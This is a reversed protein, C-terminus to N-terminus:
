QAERSISRVFTEPVGTSAETERVWGGSRAPDPVFGLASYLGSAVGNKETAVYEGLIRTVGEARAAELLRALMFQEATRSFIRCSMLWSDIRWADGERFVIMSSVLGHDAHRDRLSFAFARVDDRALMARLSPEDYRRTTLNFQNTKQELQALRPLSTEDAPVFTGVMELESLFAGLDSVSEVADELQRRAAYSASRGADERTYRDHEFWGDRELLGVFATPDAGLEVVGVEPLERRVLDCEAANDDAFVLADLGLNLRKAIGRLATAKDGWSCEFAAFDDLAFASHPHTFGTAAIQPDNKSCVALVVGRASLGKVYAGWASFAEGAPTDPGLAISEVGDDGIVGGWLTNDLDLVLAKKARANAGRWAAGFVRLYVPLFQPDFPVKGNVYFREPAWRALGIARAAREVDVFRVREAGRELLARNLADVQNAESAPALRDAMGRFGREPPVITQQYVTAGIREAARWLREFSAAKADIAAAVDDSSAGIPLVTVVDRYDPAIVVAEPAFAHLDSAPDLLEQVYAGYRGLYLQPLVGERYIACAIAKASFDPTLSGIVAVRQRPGSWDQATSAAGIRGASTFISALSPERWLGARLPDPSV